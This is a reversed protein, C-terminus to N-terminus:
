PRTSARVHRRDAGEDIPAAQQRADLLQEFRQRLQEGSVRGRAISVVVPPPESVRVVVIEGSREGHCRAYAVAEDITMLRSRKRRSLLRMESSALPLPGGLCHSM